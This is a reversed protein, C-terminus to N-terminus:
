KKRREKLIRTKMKSFAGFFAKYFTDGGDRVIIHKGGVKGVLEVVADEGGGTKHTDIDLIIQLKSLQESSYKSLKELKSSIFAKLGDTLLVNKSVYSIEM